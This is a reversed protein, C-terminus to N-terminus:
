NKCRILEKILINKRKEIYCKNTKMPWSVMSATVFGIKERETMEARSFNSFITGWSKGVSYGVSGDSDYCHFDDYTPTVVFVYHKKLFKVVFVKPLDDSFEQVLLSFLFWFIFNFVFYFWITSHLHEWSNETWCNLLKAYAHIHIM